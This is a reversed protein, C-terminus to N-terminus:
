GAAAGVDLIFWVTTGSPDRRSGWSSALVEVLQLGGGHVRLPDEDVDPATPGSQPGGQDRVSVTLEDDLAVRVETRGGGHLIANTVLESLCLEATDVTDDDIGAVRLRDRLFRRALGASRPDDDIVLRGPDDTHEHADGRRVPTPVADPEGRARVRRVASAAQAAIVPLRDRRDADLRSADDLYVIVGGVPSSEGPLPVVAMARVHEPQRSVFEPWRPEFEERGGMLVEGTRVVTTFPVDDFADIHCWELAADLRRDSSTFRLRRGGGETLAFGVRSVGPWSALECLLGRAVDDYTPGARPPGVPPPHAATPRAEVPADVGPSSAAM